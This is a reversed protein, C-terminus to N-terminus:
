QLSVVYAVVNDLDEGSVLGAPMTAGGNVVQNDIADATLGAGALQPGVGGAAKGDDLHCGTCTAAFVTLGAEVDGGAATDTGETAAGDTATTEAATTGAETTVTEGQDDTQVASNVVTEATAPTDAAEPDSDSCATLGVAGVLAIVIGLSLLKRVAAGVM